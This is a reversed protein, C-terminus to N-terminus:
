TPTLKVRPHGTTVTGAVHYAGPAGEAVSAVTCLGGGPPATVTVYGCDITDGVRAVSRTAAPDQEWGMAYSLRPDAASFFLRVRQGVVPTVAMSPAGVLMVVGDSAGVAPDDARVEVRGDRRVNTITAAYSRAYPLEPLVSRIAGEYDDSDTHGDDTPYYVECRLGDESLCWVVRTAHKGAVTTDPRITAADPAVTFVREQGDDGPDVAYTLPDAKGYIPDVPFTNTGIFIKGTDLVRWVLGHARCLRKLSALATGEYRVWRAVLYPDESLASMVGEALEEGAEGILDAIIKALPIPLPGQNYARAPLIKRLGGAGGTVEVRSRGQWAGSWMVTSSFVVKPATTTQSAVIIEVPDGVAPATDSDIEFAGTWAGDIPMDLRGTLAQKGAVTVLAADIAQAVTAM